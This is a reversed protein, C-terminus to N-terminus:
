KSKNKLEEWKTLTMDEGMFYEVQSDKQYIENPPGYLVKGSDPYECIDM